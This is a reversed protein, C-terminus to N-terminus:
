LQRGVLMQEEKLQKLSNRSDEAREKCSECGCNENAQINSEVGIVLRKLDVAIARLQVMDYKTNPNFRVWQNM